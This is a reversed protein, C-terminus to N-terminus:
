KEFVALVNMDPESSLTGVLRLGHKYGRKVFRYAFSGTDYSGRPALHLHLFHRGPGVSVRYDIWEIRETGVAREVVEMASVEDFREDFWAWYAQREPSRPPLTVPYPPPAEGPEAFGTMLRDYLTVVEGRVTELATPIFRTGPPLDIFLMSRPSRDIFTPDNWAPANGPQAEFVVNGQDDAIVTVIRIRSHPPQLYQDVYHLALHVLQRQATDVAQLAVKKSHATDRSRKGSANMQAKIWPFAAGVELGGAFETGQTFSDSLEVAGERYEPRIVADYFSAVQSADLFMPADGLWLLQMPVTRPASTPDQHGESHSRRFISM